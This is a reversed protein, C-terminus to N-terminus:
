LDLIAKLQSKYEPNNSIASHGQGNLTVLRDKSKFYEKLKVSSGYYIVEDETGHFVVTPANTKQIFEFTKFKYKLLFNPVYPYDQHMMDILSYYPAQLILTKPHNNAAVMAALGTGISYGIVVIKNEEYDLKLSNYVEQIDSYLQDENSIQGESKGFGRYDLVFLDYNLDTYVQSMEGWTDLAGANGHLYFILGKASDSKFLLGHLNIKDSTLITKEEFKTKYKFSYNALLKKPFFILSEQNFYLLTCVIIYIASIVISLRLLIKKLRAM